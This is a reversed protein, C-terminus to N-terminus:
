RVVLYIITGILVCVALVNLVILCGVGGLVAIDKRDAHKQRQERQTADAELRKLTDSQFKVSEQGLIGLASNVTKKYENIETSIQSRFEQFDKVLDGFARLMSSYKSDDDMAGVCFVCSRHLDARTVFVIM